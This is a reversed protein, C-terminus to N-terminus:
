STAQINEPSTVQRSSDGEVALPLTIETEAVKGKVVDDSNNVSSSNGEPAAPASQTTQGSSPKSLSISATAAIIVALLSSVRMEKFNTAGEM